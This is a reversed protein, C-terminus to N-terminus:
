GLHPWNKNLDKQFKELKMGIQNVFIVHHSFPLNKFNNHIESCLILIIKPTKNCYFIWNCFYFQICASNFSTRVIAKIEIKFICNKQLLHFIYFVANALIKKSVSYDWTNYHIPHGYRIYGIFNSILASSALSPLSM